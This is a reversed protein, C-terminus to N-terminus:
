LLFTYCGLKVSVNIHSHFSSLVVIAAVSIFNVLLVFVSQHAIFSFISLSSFVIKKQVFNQCAAPNFMNASHLSVSKGLQQCNRVVHILSNLVVQLSAKPSNLSVLVHCCTAQSRSQYTSILGEADFVHCTAYSRSQHTTIIIISIYFLVYIYCITIYCIRWYQKEPSFGDNLIHFHLWSTEPAPEAGTKLHYFRWLNPNDGELPGLLTLKTVQLSPCLRSRFRRPKM